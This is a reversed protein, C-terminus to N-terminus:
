MQGLRLVVCCVGRWLNYNCMAVQITYGAHQIHVWFKEHAKDLYRICLGM